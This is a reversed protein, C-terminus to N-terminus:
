LRVRKPEESPRTISQLLTGLKEGARIEDIAIHGDTWDLKEMNGLSVAWCRGDSDRFPELTDHVDRGFNAGQQLKGDTLILIDCGSAYMETVRVAERLAPRIDTLGGIFSSLHHSLGPDGYTHVRHEGSSWAISVLDRGERNFVEALALEFSLATSHRSSRGSESPRRGDRDDVMSSSEDRCLVVAGRGMPQESRYDRSALDNDALSALAYPDGEAVALMQDPVVRDSWGGRRYGTMDGTQGRHRRAEAGIVHSAWGLLRSFAGVDFKEVLDVSANVREGLPEGEMNGALVRVLVAEDTIEEVKEEAGAFVVSVPTDEGNPGDGKPSGDEIQPEMWAPVGAWM